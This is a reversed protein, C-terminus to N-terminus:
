NEYYKRRNQNFDKLIINFEVESIIQKNKKPINITQNLFEIRKLKTVTKEIELQIILGPLGGYGDPGSAINIDPTYWAVIEINKKGNRGEKEIKTKAKFCTLNNIVLKEKSLEWQYDSFDKKVLFQKNAIKRESFTVKHKLDQYSAGLYGSLIKSMKTSLDNRSGMKKEETFCTFDKNFILIFIQEKISQSISKLHSKLEGDLQNLNNKNLNSIFEKTYYAKGSITQSM